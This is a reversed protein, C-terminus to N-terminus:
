RKVFRPTKKMGQVRIAVVSYTAAGSSPTKQFVGVLNRLHDSGGGRDYLDLVMLICFRMSTRQYAVAQLGFDDVLQELTRDSHTKKLEAVTMLGNKTFHVDARGHAVDGAERRASLRLPTSQLFGYYDKQLDAEVPPSDRDLNFLYEIGHV